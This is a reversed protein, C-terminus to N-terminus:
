RFGALDSLLSRLDLRQVLRANRWSLSRSPIGFLSEDEAALRSLWGGLAFSALPSRTTTAPQSGRFTLTAM